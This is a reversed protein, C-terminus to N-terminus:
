YFSYEEAEIRIEVDFEHDRWEIHYHIQKGIVAMSLLVKMKSVVKAIKM